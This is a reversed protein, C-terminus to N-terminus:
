KLKNNKNQRAILRNQTTKYPTSNMLSSQNNYYNGMYFFMGSSSSRQEVCEYANTEKNLKWNNCKM